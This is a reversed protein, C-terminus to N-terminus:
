MVANCVAMTVANPAGRATLNEDGEPATPCIGKSSIVRLWLWLAIGLCTCAQKSQIWSVREFRKDNTRVVLDRMGGTQRDSLRWRTSVIWEENVASHAEALCM